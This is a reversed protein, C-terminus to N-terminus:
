NRRFFTHYEAAEESIIVAQFIYVDCVRDFLHLKACTKRRHISPFKTFYTIYMSKGKFKITTTYKSHSSHSGSDDNTLRRHKPPGNIFILDDIIEHSSLDMEFEDSKWEGDEEMEERLARSATMRLKHHNLSSQTEHKSKSKTKSSSHHRKRTSDPFPSGPQNITSMRNTYTSYNTTFDFDDDDTFADDDTRNVHLKSSIREAFSKKKLKKTSKSSSGKRRKKKEKEKSRDKLIKDKKDRSISFFSGRNSSKKRKPPNSSKSRLKIFSSEKSKKRSSKRQDMDYSEEGDTYPINNEYRDKKKKKKSNNSKPSTSVSKSLNAMSKVNHNKPHPVGRDRDKKKKNYSAHSSVTIKNDMKTFKLQKKPDRALRVGNSNPTSSIFNNSKNRIKHKGRKQKGKKDSKSKHRRSSDKNQSSNSKYKSDMASDYFNNSKSRQRKIPKPKLSKNSSHKDKSKYKSKSKARKKSSKSKHKNKNKNKNSKNNFWDTFPSLPSKSRIHHDNDDDIDEKEEDIFSHSNVAVSLHNTNQSKPSHYPKSLSSSYSNSNRRNDNSYLDETYARSKKTRPSRSSSM